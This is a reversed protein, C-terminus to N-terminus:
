APNEGEPLSEPERHLCDIAKLREYDERLEAIIRWNCRAIQAGLANMEEPSFGYQVATEPTAELPENGLIAQRCISALLHPFEGTFIEVSLENRSVAEFRDEGNYFNDTLERDSVIEDWEDRFFYVNFGVCFSDLCSDFNEYNEIFGAVSFTQETDEQVIWFLSEPLALVTAYLTHAQKELDDLFQRIDSKRIDGDMPIIDNFAFPQRTM